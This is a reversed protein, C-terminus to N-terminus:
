RRPRQALPEVDVPVPRDDVLPARGADPQGLVRDVLPGPRELPEGDDHGARQRAEGAVAGRLGDLRPAALDVPETDFFVSKTTTPSLGPSSTRCPPAARRAPGRRPRSGPGARAPAPRRGHQRGGPPRVRRGSRRRDTAPAVPIPGALASLVCSVTRPHRSARAPRCSARHVSGPLPTEGAQRQHRDAAPPEPGPGAEAPQEGDSRSPRDTSGGSARVLGDRQPAGNASIAPRTSSASSRGTTVAPAYSGCPTVM